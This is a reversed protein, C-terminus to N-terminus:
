GKPLVRWPETLSRALRATCDKLQSEETLVIISFCRDQDTELRVSGGRVPAELREYEVWRGDKVEGVVAVPKTWEARTDFRVTGETLPLVCLQKSDRVDQGDLSYSIFHAGRGDEFALLEGKEGWVALGSRHPALTLAPGAHETWAAVPSDTPNVYLHAHAAKGALAVSVPLQPGAAGEPPWDDFGAAGLVLSYVGANREPIGEAFGQDRELPWTSFLVRGAGLDNRVLVPTSGADSAAVVVQGGAPRVSIAPKVTVQKGGVEAPLGTKEDCAINPYREALFEVGCLEKLREAKTRRRFMDYSVDGSVYLTGGEKAWALLKAYVDDPIQYPIPYYIVKASPPIAELACENLTGVDVGMYQLTHFCSLTAEWVTWVPGGLRHADPTLVYVSAPEYRREFQRFTLGSARYVDLCDKKVWDGPYVMGWPFVWEVNDKWDWNHIKSAGLGWAYHTIALWLEQQQEDTRTTHYGYDKGDGWAPHTKCGFEGASMSKGRARLDAFRLVSPFRDIDRQPKDFYGINACTHDGIAQIIDIGPGPSQYYESTIAHHQDVERIARVHRNIWRKMLEIKFAAMDVARMDAWEGSGYDELPVKGLPGPVRGEGWSAKLADDSEYKRQLFENWLREVDTRPVEGGRQNALEVNDGLRLQFDGNLYWIIGPVDKYRKVFAQVWAAQKELVDDEVVVNAGILLGPMYVQGYQQSLQVMADIKRLLPEPWEYPPSQGVASVQLNEPLNMASDRMTEFDRKWVLPNEHASNFAFSFSDTGQLFHERGNLRFLNDKLVCDPGSQVVKENWVCFGTEMEDWSKGDLSLTAEVRYFDDAFRGPRWEASLETTSDPELHAALPPLAIPRGEGGDGRGAPSSDPILTIRVSAERPQAGFNSVKVKIEVPEGQRYTAYSTQLDHLSTEKVLADVIPVLLEASAPADRPFFDFDTAGFIAWASGAYYGGYRYTISAASGRLRGYRDYCDVLPVRRADDYGLVTVASWGQMPADAVFDRPVIYQGPAAAAHDVRKLPFGADFVGIQEPAVVLSDGPKGRATNMILEPAEAAALKVKACHEGSLALTTTISALDAQTRYWAHDRVQDPDTVNEFGPDGILERGQADKLTIDDFSATGTCRYLGVKIDLYAAGEAVEFGYKSATWDRDGVLHITDRWALLKGDAAHQYVALYAFGGGTVGRCRLHGEFTLQRGMEPTVPIRYHWSCEEPTPQGPKPPEAGVLNNFAYGGMTLMNGGSRLYRRFADAAPAPFTEGYPLVVVTFREPTLFHRDALQAASILTTEYPQGPIADLIEKLYEPDSAIGVVPLDDKLIAIGPKGGREPPAPPQAVQDIDLAETGQVLTFDDVWLTGSAQFLGFPVVLRTTDEGVTFTYAYQQWDQTGVPQTFDLFAVYDGFRDYQYVAVYGYGNVGENPVIDQAKAWVSITYTEGREFDEVTWSGSGMTREGPRPEVTVRLSRKGSHAVQDDFACGANLTLDLPRREFSGNDILSVPQALGVSAILACVFALCCVM